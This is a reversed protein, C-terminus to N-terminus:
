QNINEWKNRGFKTVCLFQFGVSVISLWINIYLMNNNNVLYSSLSNINLKKWFVSCDRPITFEVHHVCKSSKAQVSRCVMLNMDESHGCLNLAVVTWTQVACDPIEIEITQQSYWEYWPEYQRPSWPCTDRTQGTGARLRSSPKERPCVIPKQCWPVSEQLLFGLSLWWFFTEQVYVLVRIVM